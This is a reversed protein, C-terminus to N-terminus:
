RHLPLIMKEVAVTFRQSFSNNGSILSLKRKDM